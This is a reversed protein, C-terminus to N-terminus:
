ISIRAAIPKHDSMNTEISNLGVGLVPINVVKVGDGKAVIWDIRTNLMSIPNTCTPEIFNNYDIEFEKIKCLRPHMATVNSDMGIIVVEASQKEIFSLIERLHGDGRESCVQGIFPDCGALHASVVLVTKGSEKDRLSLAMGQGKIDGFNEVCEFRDKNFAIGRKSLHVEYNEPFLSPDLYNAEQLCIVDFKLSHTFIKKAMELYTKHLLEERSGQAGRSINLLHQDFRELVEEDCVIPRIKYDTIMKDIEQRWRWNPSEVGDLMTLDYLAWNDKAQWQSKAIRKEEDSKAFVMKLAIQQIKETLSMLEPEQSYREQMVEQMCAARLYDYHDSLGGCNYSAVTFETGGALSINFILVAILSKFLNM